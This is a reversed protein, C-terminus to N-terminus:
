PSVSRYFRIPFSMANSDTFQWLGGSPASTASGALVQWVVPPALNTAAEIQYSQGQTGLFAVTVTGDSNQTIGTLNLVAIVSLASAVKDSVVVSYAGGDTIQANSITLSANTQGALAVNGKFWQYALPPATSSASVSFTANTGPIAQVSQPQSTITPTTLGYVLLMNTTGVYVKGNAVTAVSMKVASALNQGSGIETAINTAPYAHLLHNTVAIAWLIANSTGNASVTPSAGTSGYVTANSVVTAGIVANSMSFAEPRDNAGVYYVTNNYYAPAGWSKLINSPMEQVVLDTPPNYGTLNDRDVLYITGQKGACVLLHPHAASGADDPLLTMGGSGFDLDGASLAAQDQPTFYDVLGLAGNSPYLKLLSDGYDNSVTGDYTGNGTSAFIYGNTDAAPGCGAEWFGSDSGNPNSNYVYSQALTQADYGFLWGHYPVKDGLSAFGIYVVGNELLLACRNLHRLGNFALSGGSNGDGNGSVTASIVVPGGFKEAGTTVDLAHLRHVYNTSVGTVVEKTKAEVYITGSIPDIVPTSTIGIEGAIESSGTDSAPVPTVSAAPNTFSRHWLPSANAGTTNDADFAYVSDNETAIFAVNHFGSGPISVNAEVLPEAFVYGDVTHSFLKAFNTSGVNAPTLIAENTNQGTRYNDNHYTLVSVPLIPQTGAALISPWLWLGASLFLLNHLKSLFGSLPVQSGRQFTAMM